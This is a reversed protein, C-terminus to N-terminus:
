SNKKEALISYVMPIKNELHAIRYKKQAIELVNNFCDYPSYDLENFSLIQLNNKILSNIVESLSHNWTVSTQQINASKDAYTGSETEIIPEAKFYNYQIYKFDNDFMWVVPHFEVFILKGNTKFLSINLKGM